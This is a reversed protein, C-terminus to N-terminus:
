VGTNSSLGVACAARFPLLVYKYTAIYIEGYQAVRSDRTETTNRFAPWKPICTARAHTYRKGTCLIAHARLSASASDISVHDVSPQRQCKSLQPFKLSYCPCSFSFACRKPHRCLDPIVGSAHKYRCSKEASLLGKRLDPLGMWLRTAPHTVHCLRCSPGLGKRTDPRPAIDIAIISRLSTHNCEFVYKMSGSVGAGEVTDPSTGTMMM